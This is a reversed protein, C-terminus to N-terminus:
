NKTNSIEVFEMFYLDIKGSFDLERKKTITNMTVTFKETYMKTVAKGLDAKTPYYYHISARQIDLEKSIDSYSFSNYGKTQILEQALDLIAQQTNM